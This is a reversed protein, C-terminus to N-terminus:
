ATRLMAVAASMPLAAISEETVAAPRVIRDGCHLEIRPAGILRAFTQEGVGIAAPLSLEACRITMHSNAGGFKSVLGAIGRTFVWDFGPDANEICVIKNFLDVQNTMRGDLLVPTGEVSHTTVFNPASRHLPVVFLDAEARLIYGMRLSRAQSAEQRRRAIIQQLHAETDELIATHLTETIESTQLYSLDERSLGLADGWEVLRELADSLHRTFVFKAHERNVIALRAYNLLGEPTVTDLGSEELLAALREREDVQLTFPMPLVPNLLTQSAHFLDNRQDYRLSLIDYTGPRLHGYRALFTAQEQRGAMVRMFDRTLEGAVTRLSRKFAELRESDLAGRRVASRLLAEAIFAHRAIISFPLTGLHRCEDLLGIAQWLPLPEEAAGRREAQLTQLQEIQRLAQPLSAEPTLRVNVRTLRQIQERYVAYEAPNLVGPYRAQFDADFTFDWTTQAVQFEIKDHFEPHTALRNLWADVVKAAMEPTVEVPLFSNFSNRVDIYPSGGLMVMLPQNPVPRYGMRCRAEQWISDTVLTRYLAVALPRPHTGIIEAPNWDPMQGLITRAGALGPHPQSRVTFFAAARTIAGNVWARTGRNWNRQVTIRRVQLLHLVGDQTKAFEIDLPEGQGIIRELEHTMALLEAVRPSEIYAPHYDHHVVVTKNVGVGGTVRDTTGSEDDYNVIYYPAGDTLDYSMIVGSMTVGQLMPQVLVQDNPNGSYCALVKAIAAQIDQLSDSSVDLCSTFAGAMSQAVGDECYASSRIALPCGAFQRAIQALISERSTRYDHATFYFLDPVVCRTVLPRVRALTEAKTGFLSM